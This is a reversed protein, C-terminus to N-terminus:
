RGYLVNQVLATSFRKVQDDDLLEVGIAHESDSVLEFRGDDAQATAVDHWPMKRADPQRKLRAEIRCCEHTDGVVHAKSLSQRVPERENVHVDHVSHDVLSFRVLQQLSSEAVVNGVEILQRFLNRHHEDVLVVRQASRLMQRRVNNFKAANVDLLSM